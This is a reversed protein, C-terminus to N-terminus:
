RRSHGCCPPIVPRAAFTAAAVPGLARAATTTSAAVGSMSGYIETGYRDAIVTARALTAMGLLALGAIVTVNGRGAVIVAIGIAMLTFIGAVTMSTPLRGALPPFVLRGPIQAIGVLGVAFAAFGASYGRELLFPIALVTM